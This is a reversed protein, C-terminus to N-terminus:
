RKNFLDKGGMGLTDMFPIMHQRGARRGTAVYDARNIYAKKVGVQFAHLLISTYTIALLPWIKIFRVAANFAGRELAVQLYGPIGIAQSLFVGMMGFILEDPFAVYFSIGFLMINVLYLLNGIAVLPKRLFYGISAILHMFGRGFGIMDSRYFAELMQGIAQEAAGAGFKDPFVWYVLM